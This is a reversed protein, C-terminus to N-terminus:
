FSISTILYFGRLSDFNGNRINQSILFSEQTRSSDYFTLLYSENNLYSFFSDIRNYGFGFKISEFIRYQISLDSEYGRYMGRTGASALTMQIQDSKTKLNDSFRTGQSYFGDLGLNIFFKSFVNWELRLSLQPGYTFYYEQFAGSGINQGYIYKNINKIGGGLGLKCSNCVEIIKYANLEFESRGLAPFYIRQLTSEKADTKWQITNPNVSEIEFYSTEIWFKHNLNEYRLGFPVMVKSNQQLQSQLIQFDKNPNNTSSNYEYPSYTYTQRRILLEWNFENLNLNQKNPINKTDQSAETSHKIEQSFIHRPFLFLNTSSIFMLAILYYFSRKM